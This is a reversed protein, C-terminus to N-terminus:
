AAERMQDFIKRFTPHTQEALHLGGAVIAGRTGAASQDIGPYRFIKLRNRTLVRQFAEDSVAVITETGQWVAFRMMLGLLERTLMDPQQHLPDVGFRSIEWVAPSRPLSQEGALHPFVDGLLYPRDTQLLRWCAVPECDQVVAGYITDKRDFQDRERGWRDVALPWGLGEVFIRRRLRQTKWALDTHNEVTFVLSRCGDAIKRGVEIQARM